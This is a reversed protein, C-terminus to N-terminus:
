AGENRYIRGDVVDVHVAGAPAADTPAGAAFRVDDGWRIVEQPAPELRYIGDGGRRMVLPQDAPPAPEPTEVDALQGLTLRLPVTVQAEAPAPPRVVGTPAPEAVRIIRVPDDSM